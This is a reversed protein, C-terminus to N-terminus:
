HIPKPGFGAASFATNPDKSLRELRINIVDSILSDITDKFDSSKTEPSPDYPKNWSISLSNPLGKEEYTFAKTGQPKLTGFDNLTNRTLPKGKWDEFSSKIKQEMIAPDFDGVIALTAYEPRYYDEYYDRLAKAPANKIVEITGIPFRDPFRQGTFQSKSSAIFARLGPTARAREEGAIVGRERDVAAPDINLNSATERMLFLATKVSDEDVKPLDLQYVTEAWSTYANTDPGFKLGHRELIKVMEGEPVNKSGNFAMHELFHALGLQDERENLSGSAFRLRVAMTGAPTANKYLIYTMGNSLRGFIANPDPKIDSKSQAFAIADPAKFAVPASIAAPNAQQATATTTLASASLLGLALALATKSLLSSRLHM